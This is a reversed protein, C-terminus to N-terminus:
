YVGLYYYTIKLEPEIMKSHVSCLGSLFCNKVDNNDKFQKGKLDIWLQKYEPSGLIAKCTKCKRIEKVINELKFGSGLHIYM